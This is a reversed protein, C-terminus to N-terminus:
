NLKVFNGLVSPLNGNTYSFVGMAGGCYLNNNFSHVTGGYASYNSGVSTWQSGNFKIVPSTIKSNTGFTHALYLENNIVKLHNLGLNYGSLSNTYIYAMLPSSVNAWTSGNYKAFNNVTLGGLSNFEGLAYLENNYTAINLIKPSSTTIGNVNTWVNNEFRYLGDNTGCYLKNNLDGLCNNSGLPDIIISVNSGDYKYIYSDGLIYLEGNLIHLDSGFIGNVGINPYTYNFASLVTGDWVYLKDATFYLKNNYVIMDKVKSNLFNGAGINSWNAGNWKAISHAVIGGISTFDGAVILDSNYTIMSTIKTLTVGSGTPHNGSASPFSTAAVWLSSSSSSPNPQPNNPTCSALFLTTIAIFSYLLTKMQDIKNNYNESLKL